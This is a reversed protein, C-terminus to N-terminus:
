SEMILKFLGRIAVQGLFRTGAGAPPLFVADPAYFMMIRDLQKARLKRRWQERMTTLDDAASEARQKAGTGKPRTADEWGHALSSGAEPAVLAVALIAVSLKAVAFIPLGTSNADTEGGVTQSQLAPLHHQV